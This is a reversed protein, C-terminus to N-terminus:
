KVLAKSDKSHFLFCVEGEIARDLESLEFSEGSSVVVDIEFLQNVIERNRDPHNTNGILQFLTDTNGGDHILNILEGENVEKDEVRYYNSAGFGNENVKNVWASTKAENKFFDKGLRSCSSPELGLLLTRQSV